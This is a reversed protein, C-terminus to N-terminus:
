GSCRQAKLISGSTFMDYLANDPNVATSSATARGARNTALQALLSDNLVVEKVNQPMKGHNRASTVAIAAKIDNAMTHLRSLPQSSDMPVIVGGVRVVALMAIISLKSKEFIIPVFVEPGVGLQALHEALSDSQANLQAYTLSGDWAEIAPAGPRETLSTAPARPGWYNGSSM